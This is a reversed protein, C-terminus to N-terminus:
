IFAHISSTRSIHRSIQSFVFFFVYARHVDGVPKLGFHRDAVLMPPCFLLVFYYLPYGNLSYSNHILHPFECVACGFLGIFGRKRQFFIAMVDYQASVRICKSEDEIDGHWARIPLTERYNAFFLKKFLFKLLYDEFHNKHRFYKSKGSCWSWMIRQVWLMFYQAPNSRRYFLAQM